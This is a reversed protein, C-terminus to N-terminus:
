RPVIATWFIEAHPKQSTIEFVAKYPTERSIPLMVSSYKVWHDAHVKPNYYLHMAAAVPPLQEPTHRAADDGSYFKLTGQDGQDDGGTNRIWGHLIGDTKAFIETNETIPDAKLMKWRKDELPMWYADVLAYPGSSHEYRIMWEEGEPVPMCFNQQQIKDSSYYHVFSGAYEKGNILGKVGGRTSNESAHINVFLFGDENATVKYEEGPFPIKRWEGFRLYSPIFILRAAPNGETSEFRTKFNGGHPVPLCISNYEIQFDGSGKHAYAAGAATGLDGEKPDVGSNSPSSSVLHVSGRSQDCHRMAAAFGSNEQM